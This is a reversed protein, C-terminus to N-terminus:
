CLGSGLSVARAKESKGGFEPKEGTKAADEDQGVSFGARKM